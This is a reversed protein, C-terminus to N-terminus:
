KLKRCIWNYIMTPRSMGLEIYCKTSLKLFSKFNLKPLMMYLMEILRQKHCNYILIKLNLIDQIEIERLFEKLWENYMLYAKIKLEYDKPYSQSSINLNSFRQTFLTNPTSVCGNRSMLIHTAQDSHWAKPFDIYGGKTQLTKVRYCYNAECLMFLSSTLYRLYDLQCLYEPYACDEFEIENNVNRRKAKARFLDVNPYKITLKDIEEVFNPEYVDDDSAMILFETDCMDVLLNWHSVLSKGGMNEENRRFTFRPDDACVKDYISKLDEPSCDDSVIVKFDTYTQNKISMLAEEFFRAKYAPLLFTYKINNM